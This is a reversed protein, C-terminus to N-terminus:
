AEPGIDRPDRLNIFSPQRPRDVTGYPMYSFKAIKGILQNERALKALVARQAHDAVTCGFPKPWRPDQCIVSGIVDTKIKGAQASSRKTYGLESREAANDNIHMWEYDIIVAETDERPKIRLMWGERLTARGHKYPGAPDRLIIGEAGRALESELYTALHQADTILIQKLPIAFTGYEPPNRHLYTATCRNEFNLGTKFTDFTYFRLTSIDGYQSMVVSQTRHCVGGGSHDYPDGAVLEGDFNAYEPRSLLQMLKRNPFPKGSNSQPAGNPTAARIGDLKTSALLPYRLGWAPISEEWTKGPLRELSTPKMLRIPM